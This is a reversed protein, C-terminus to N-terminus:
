MTSPRGIASSRGFPSVVLTRRAQRRMLQLSALRHACADQDDLVFLRQRQQQAVVEFRFAVLDLGDRAAVLGVRPQLLARGIQHHEVPHQRAQGADLQAPPQARPRLGLASGIMM